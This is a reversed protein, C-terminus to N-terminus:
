PLVLAVCSFIGDAKLAEFNVVRKPIERFSRELTVTRYLYIGGLLVLPILAWKLASIRM